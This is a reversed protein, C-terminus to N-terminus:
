DSKQKNRELGKYIKREFFEVYASNNQDYVIHRLALKTSELGVAVVIGTMLLGTFGILIAMVRSIKRVPCFDGYGITTATIFSYYFTSVWGMNWKELRNVVRGMLLIVVALFILLPSALLIMWFFIRLFWFTFEM